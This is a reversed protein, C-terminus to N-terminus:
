LGHILSLSSVKPIYFTFTAGRGVESRVDIKGNHEEIIRKSIYLGLGIGSNNNVLYNGTKHFKNFLRMRDTSSIGPGMDTISCYVRNLRQEIHIVIDGSQPSVKIANDLLSSLVFSIGDINVTIEDDFTAPTYHIQLQKQRIGGDHSQLATTVLYSFRTKELSFQPFFRNIQNVTLLNEIVHSLTNINKGLLDYVQYQPNNQSTTTQLSYIFNKLVTIPTRLNDASLAIFENEMSNTEDGHHLAEKLKTNTQAADAYLKYVYTFLIITLTFSLLNTGYTFPSEASPFSFHIYTYIIMSCFFNAIGASLGGIIMQAAAVLPILLVLDTAFLRFYALVFTLLLSNCIGVITYVQEKWLPHRTTLYLGIIEYIESAMILLLYFTIETATFGQFVIIYLGLFKLIWRIAIILIKGILSDTNM